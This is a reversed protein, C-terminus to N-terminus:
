GSQIMRKTKMIQIYKNVSNVFHIILMTKMVIKAYFVIDNPKSGPVSRRISKKPIAFNISANKGAQLRCSAPIMTKDTRIVAKNTEKSMEKKIKM